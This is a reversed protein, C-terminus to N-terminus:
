IGEKIVKYLMYPFVGLMFVGMIIGWFFYFIIRKTPTNLYNSESLDDYVYAGVLALVGGVLYFIVICIWNM